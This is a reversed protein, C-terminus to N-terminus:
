ILDKLRVRETIKGRDNHQLNANINSVWVDKDYHKCIAEYFFLVEDESIPKFHWTDVGVNMMNKQIRWAGHIHGVLNFRESTGKSPYHILRVDLNKIRLDKMDQVSVFGADLFEENKFKDDHNGKILHVQGNLKSINKIGDKTYSFDGLHYVTDSKNVTENWKEIMHKDMDKVSSFFRPFLKLRPDTFHNDSTFYIM